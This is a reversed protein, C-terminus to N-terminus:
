NDLSYNGSDIGPHSAFYAIFVIIGIIWLLSLGIGVYGTILGALWFGRAYPQRKRAMHGTIVAAIAPFLGFGYFLSFFAGVIGTILSAISLGKPQQPAGYYGAQYAPPYGVPAYAPPAPPLPAAQAYPDVLPPAAPAPPMPPPPPTAAAPAVMPAPEIPPVPSVPPETTM